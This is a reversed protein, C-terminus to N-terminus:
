SPKAILVMLCGSEKYNHMGAQLLFLTRELQHGKRSYVSDRVTLWPVHNELCMPWKNKFYLSM